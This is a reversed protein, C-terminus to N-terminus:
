ESMAAFQRYLNHYHAGNNLLALHDGAEALRGHELVFIKDARSITSLRHAIVISTRGALLRDLATQLRSETVTDIASTAEDLILIRPDALMARTFCILQRQGQSVSKGQEGVPTDLGEPMNELLDLCDLRRAAERIEEDTAEPRGIRINEYVTGSFLFNSQLVIGLQRRLSPTTVDAIDHGDILIQGSQPLYFKSILNIITSKGSGTHGVLAATQGSEIRLSLDHIVPQAPNYGFTVERLEIDGRIPPLQRADPKDSWTPKTDLVGFLREAGAMSVVAVTYIRGLNQIPTFFFNALFFFTLVDGVETAQWGHIVGYGGVALLLAMFAQGNFELLPMFLANQNGLNVNNGSHQGVLEDFIGFNREEQAYGQIVQMGKVSEAVSGTIRSQSRQSLRSFRSIRKHFYRNILFLAPGILALLLFLGPSVIVMAISSGLMMGLMLISFFFVNQIGRRITEIDSIVRSLISGLKTRNYFDLTLTQLHEYLEKRLDHVVDEGIELAMRQRFHQGVETVIALLGYGITGWVTLTWNGGAIFNSIVLGLVLAGAPRLAARLGTLAFIINRKAAYPRTYSFIRKLLKLDLPRERKFDEGHKGRGVGGGEFSGGPGVGSAGGMGGGGGIM